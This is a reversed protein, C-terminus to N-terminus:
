MGSPEKDLNDLMEAISEKTVLFRDSFPDIIIGDLRDMHKVFRLLTKLPVAEIDEEGIEGIEDISTFVAAMKNGEDDELGLFSVAISAVDDIDGREILRLEKNGAHLAALVQEGEDVMHRLVALAIKNDKRLDNGQSREMVVKLAKLDPIDHIGAKNGSQVLEEDAQHRWRDAMFLALDKSIPCVDDPVEEQIPHWDYEGRRLVVGAATGQVQYIAGRFSDLSYSVFVSKYMDVLVSYIVGARDDRELVGLASIMEAYYLGMEELSMAKDRFGAGSDIDAKVRILDALVEALVLKLFYKSKSAKVKELLALRKEGLSLGRDDGYEGLLDAVPGSFADRIYEEDYNKEDSVNRLVGAAIVDQPMHMAALINVMDLSKSLQDGKWRKGLLLSAYEAAIHVSEQRIEKQPDYADILEILLPWGKPYTEKGSRVVVEDKLGNYDLEWRCHEHAAFAPSYNIPDWKPIDLLETQILFENTLQESYTEEYDASHDDSASRIVMIGRDLYVAVSRYPKADSPEEAEKSIRYLDLTLYTKM